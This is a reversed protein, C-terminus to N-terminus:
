TFKLTITGFYTVNAYAVVNTFASSKTLGIRVHHTGQKTCSITYPSATFNTASTSNNVAGSPGAIYGSMTTVTITSINEMSKETVVDFYATTAAANGILGHMAMSSAVSMTDNAAYCLGLAKRWAAPDNVEVVRNGNKDVLLSLANSIDTGGVTKWGSLWLGTKGDAVYRDTIIAVNKSNVDRLRFGVSNGQTYSTATVNYNTNNLYIGPSINSITLNGTMTDGTKKLLNGVLTALTMKKSAGNESLVVLAADNVTTSEPLESIAKGTLEAM